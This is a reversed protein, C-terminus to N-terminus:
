PVKIPAILLLAPRASTPRSSHDGPLAPFPERFLFTAPVHGPLRKSDPFAVRMVPDGCMSM